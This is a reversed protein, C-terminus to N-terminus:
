FRSFPLATLRHKLLSKVLETIVVDVEVRNVAVSSCHTKEVFCLRYAIPAHKLQSHRSHFGYLRTITLITQKTSGQLLPNHCLQGQLQHIQHVATRIKIGKYLPRYHLVLFGTSNEKGSESFCQRVCTLTCLKRIAILTIVFRLM